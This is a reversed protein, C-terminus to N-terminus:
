IKLLISFNLNLHFLIQINFPSYSSGSEFAVKLYDKLNDMDNNTTELNTTENSM